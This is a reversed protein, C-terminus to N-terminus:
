QQQMVTEKEEMGNWEGSPDVHCLAMRAEVGSMSMESVFASVKGLFHRSVKRVKEQKSEDVVEEFRVEGGGPEEGLRQDM